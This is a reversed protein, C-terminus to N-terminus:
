FSKSLCFLGYVPSIEKRVISGRGERLVRTVGPAFRFGQFATSPAAADFVGPAFHFGQFPTSPAAAFRARIHVTRELWCDVCVLVMDLIVM